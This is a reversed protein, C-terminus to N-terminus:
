GGSFEKKARETIERIFDGKAETYGERDFRYVEALHCKLREYEEATEPHERLYDRFYIRDMLPHGAPAMHYHFKVPTEPFYGKWFAMHGPAPGNPYGYGISQATLTPVIEREADEFSTIEAIIDITPKAALGPVATSGIHETRLILNPFQERLSEAEAEYMEPWRPDYEVLYIPFRRGLEERESDAM